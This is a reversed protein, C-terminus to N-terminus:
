QIERLPFLLIVCYISAAHFILGSAILMVTDFTSKYDTIFISVFVNLAIVAIIAFIALEM